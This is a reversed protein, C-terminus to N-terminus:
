KTKRTAKTPQAPPEINITALLRRAFNAEGTKIALLNLDVPTGLVPSRFFHGWALMERLVRQGQDTSFLQRFDAYRDQPSYNDQVPLNTVFDYLDNENM